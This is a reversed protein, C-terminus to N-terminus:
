RNRNQKLWGGLMRGIEAIMDSVHRYQGDNLWHWHHALRLYVRLRHLAADANVLIEQRKQGKKYQAECLRDQVDLACDMMRQTVTFRYPRPFKESKPLLWALLDFLRTLIIMDETMYDGINM